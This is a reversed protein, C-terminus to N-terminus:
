GQIEQKFASSSLQEFYRAGLLKSLCLPLFEQRIKVGSVTYKRQTIPKNKELPGDSSHLQGPKRQCLALKEQIAKKYCYMHGELIHKTIMESDMKTGM